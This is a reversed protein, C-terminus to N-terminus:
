LKFFGPIFYAYYRGGNETKDGNNNTYHRGSQGGCLIDADLWTSTISWKLWDSGPQPLRHLLVVCRLM